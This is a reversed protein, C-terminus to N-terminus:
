LIVFKWISFFDEKKKKKNVQLINYVKEMEAWM